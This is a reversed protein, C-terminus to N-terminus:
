NISKENILKYIINRKIFFFVIIGLYIFLQTFIGLYFTLVMWNFDYLGNLYFLLYLYSNFLVNFVVLSWLFSIRLKVEKRFLNKKFLFKSLTFYILYLLFVSILIFFFLKQILQEFTITGISFYINDM